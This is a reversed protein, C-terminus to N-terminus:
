KGIKGELAREFMKTANEKTMKRRQWGKPFKTLMEEALEPLMDRPVGLDKLSSPVDLDEVLKKVAAVAKYAKEELTLGNVREGMAEAILALEKACAFLNYEMVYPLAIGCSVGHSIGYRSVLTDGMSHGYVTGIAIGSLLAALSMNSRADLHEGDAYALRLNTAILKTAELALMDKIPNFRTSMMGEIAHSLADLGTGATVAPPMTVTLLPDVIAVDALCQRSVIMRKLKERIIVAASSVESGTGATTPLLIKPLGDKKVLKRGIYNNVEGSNTAMVSAVKAMDLASGGGVGILLDYEDKRVADCIAEVITMDPEHGIENFVKRVKLEEEELAKKVRDAIGVKEITKDTVFFISSGGLQKAELGVTDATGIGFIIKTPVQFSFPKTSLYSVSM